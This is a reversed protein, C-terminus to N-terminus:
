GPFFQVFIELKGANWQIEFPFYFKFSGKTVTLTHTVALKADIITSLQPRVVYLYTIAEEFSCQKFSFM